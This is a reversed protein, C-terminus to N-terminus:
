SSTMIITDFFIIQLIYAIGIESCRTFSTVVPGVFEIAKTRMTFMATRAFGIVFLIIWSWLDYEKNTGSPFVIRQNGGFAPAILSIIFCGVSQYFMLLEPSSTSKNTVVVKIIIRFGM